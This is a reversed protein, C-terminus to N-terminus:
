ESCAQELISDFQGEVPFLFSSPKRRVPESTSFREEGGDARNSRCDFHPRGVYVRFLHLLLVLQGFGDLLSQRQQATLWTSPPTLRRVFPAIQACLFDPARFGEFDLDLTTITLEPKM